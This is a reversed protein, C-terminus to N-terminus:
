RGSARNLLVALQERLYARARNLMARQQAATLGLDASVEAPPRERVDRQRVVAQWTEPLEGVAARLRARVAPDAPDIRPWRAPFERWHGPFPDEPGQFRAADVSPPEEGRAAMGALARSLWGKGGAMHM